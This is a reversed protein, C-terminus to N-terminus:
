EEKPEEIKSHLQRYRSRSRAILEDRHLLYYRRHNARAQEAHNQQWARSTERHREITEQTRRSYYLRVKDANKHRWERNYNLYHDPDQDRYTQQRRAADDRHSKHYISMCSKCWAKLGDKRTSDRHFESEDLPIQCRSCTKM